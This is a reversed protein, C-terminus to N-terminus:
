KVPAPPALRCLNELYEKYDLYLKVSAPGGPRRSMSPSSMLGPFEYHLTKEFNGFRTFDSVLGSIPRPILADGEADHLFLFSELDMWLHTGAQDCLSQLLTAAEEGTIDGPLMRHFGFPCLIDLHPLLQRYADEAGPVHYSNPALLVPKDPAFRRVHPTFEAAFKVIEAREDADGLSGDKEGSLYWGYFSPHKGYRQWLEEAVKKSWELCGPTYDRFAYLGVGPLVHMGLRDAEGLIAELPDASAIPMRGPFLKSPYYAKGHYGETDIKHAGRHTFNEFMMTIVLIDQDVEHMARVLERWQADTMKGLEPNFLKGERESFHYLDVWAGGLRRTSRLTSPIIEIPQEARLTTWGSKAVLVLRHRGAHGSALWQFRFGRVSGAAVELEEEHLLAAKSEHDLYVRVQYSKASKKANRVAGRIDLSIQDTVPSPPILTLSVRPGCLELNPAAIEGGPQRPREARVTPVSVLLLVTLAKVVARRAKLRRAVAEAAAKM